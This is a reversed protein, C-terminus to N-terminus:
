IVQSEKPPGVQFLRGVNELETPSKPLSNKDTEIEAMTQYNACNQILFPEITIVFVNKTHGRMLPRQVPLPRFGLIISQKKGCDTISDKRM